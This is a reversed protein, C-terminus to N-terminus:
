FYTRTSHVDRRGEEEGRRQQQRVDVSLNSVRVGPYLKALGCLKDAHTAFLTKCDLRLLAEACAWAVHEGDSSSTSRGLEDVLVLSSSTAAGLIHQMERMEVLFTSANTELSDGTGIRAYVGDIPPCSFFAAPVYCGAHALIVLTAVQRVYTSKGSMNPGTVVSFPFAPSIFTSNAVYTSGNNIIGDGDGGGGGTSLSSLSAVTEELVPHRGEEIALPGDSTFEPRVYPAPSATVRHAFALLMDLLSVASSLAGLAAFNERVRTVLDDIVAASLIFSEEMAEKFRSNLADLEMCTFAVPGSGVGSGGPGIGRSGHGGGGGRGGRNNHDSIPERGRGQGDVLAYAAAAPDMPFDLRRMQLSIVQQRAAPATNRMLKRHDAASMSLHFGATNSYVLKLSELGTQERMMRLLEHMAETTECFSRRAIDLFSDVGGRVAFVQRTRQAFTSKGEVVDEEFVENIRELFGAFFDGKFVEKIETLLPSTVNAVELAAGMLPVAALTARMGLLTKIMTSVHSADPPHSRRASAAASAASPATANQINVDDAPGKKGNEDLAVAGASTSINGGGGRSVPHGAAASGGAGRGRPPAFTAIVKDIDKNPMSRLHRRLEGATDGARLLEDLADLRAGITAHDKLPQLLSVKLLRAGGKTVCTNLLGFLSRGGGGGGGGGGRTRGVSRGVSPERVSEGRAGLPAAIELNRATSPDVTMFHESRGCTVIVTGPPCAVYSSPDLLLPPPHITGTGDGGGGGGTAAVTGTVARGGGFEVFQLVASAAGFALYMDRPNAPLRSGVRACRTVLEAGATDDFQRRSLEVLSCDHARSFRRVADGLSM